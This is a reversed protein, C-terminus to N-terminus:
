IYLMYFFVEQVASNRISIFTGFKIATVGDALKKEEVTSRSKGKGQAYYPLEEEAAVRLLNRATGM